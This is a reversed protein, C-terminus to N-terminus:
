NRLLNFCCLILVFSLMFLKYKILLDILHNAFVEWVFLRNLLQFAFNRRIQCVPQVAINKIWQFSKIPYYCLKLFVALLLFDTLNHFFATEDSFFLLLKGSLHFFFFLLFSKFFALFHVAHVILCLLVITWNFFSLQEIIFLGFVFYFVDLSLKCNLPLLLLSLKPNLLFKLNFVILQHAIIYQGLFPILNIKHQLMHLHMGRLLFLTSHYVLQTLSGDLVVENDFLLRIVQPHIWIFLRVHQNM